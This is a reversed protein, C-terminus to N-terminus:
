EKGLRKQLIDVKWRLDDITKDAEKLKRNQYWVIGAMLIAMILQLIDWETTTMSDVGNRWTQALFAL